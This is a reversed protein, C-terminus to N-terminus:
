RWSIRFRMTRIGAIYDGIRLRNIKTSSYFYIEDVYRGNKRSNFAVMHYADINMRKRLLAYCNMDDCTKAVRAIEDYENRKIARDFESHKPYKVDPAGLGPRTQRVPDLRRRVVASIRAKVDERKVVPNEVLLYLGESERVDNTEVFLRVYRFELDEFLGLHRLLSYM